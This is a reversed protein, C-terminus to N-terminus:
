PMRRTKAAPTASGREARAKNEWVEYSKWLFTTLETSLGYGIPEMSYRGFRVGVSAM